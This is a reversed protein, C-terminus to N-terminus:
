AIVADRIVCWAMGEAEESAAAEEGGGWDAACCSM